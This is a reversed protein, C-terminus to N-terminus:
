NPDEYRPIFFNFFNNFIEAIDNNKELILNKEMLTIKNSNSSKNSFLRKIYKWFSRSEAFKRHDLNSSLKEYLLYAITGNNILLQKIRM